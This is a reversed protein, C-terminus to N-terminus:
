IYNQMNKTNKEIFVKEKSNWPSAKLVWKNSGFAKWQLIKKQNKM